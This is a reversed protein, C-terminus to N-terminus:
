PKVTLNNKQIYNKLKVLDEPTDVSMSDYDTMVTRIPFGHELVRLQELKEIKELNSEPLNAVKLLFDKRYAYIGIHQLYGFHDPWRDKEDEDRNFPIVARTFYLADGNKDVVVRVLNPNFLEEGSSVRKVPTAMLVDDNEFVRYLERLLEHRVLPEDGQLNIIVDVDMNEAVFAVRDTGSPLDSPTMVARGGFTDVAAVIRDDDTAILVSEFVDAALAREYVWRVMPYGQIEALPKGPFRTSQFRAPIICAAKM